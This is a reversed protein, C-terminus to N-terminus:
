AVDLMEKISKQNESAARANSDFCDIEPYTELFWSKIRAYRISHCKARMRLEEYEEMIKKSNDHTSIYEEMFTYTLGKYSEKNPNTKITRKVVHFTPFDRRVEQLRAYESSLPNECKKIFSKSLVISGDIVNVKIDTNYMM